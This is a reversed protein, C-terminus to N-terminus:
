EQQKDETDSVSDVLHSAVVLIADRSAAIDNVVQRIESSDFFVPRESIESMTKYREDLIDLCGEISEQMNIITVGFKYNYYVSVGLLLSVLIVGGILFYTLM